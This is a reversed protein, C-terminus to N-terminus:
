LRNSMCLSRIETVTTYMENHRHDNDTPRNIVRDHDASAKPEKDSLPPLLRYLLIINCIRCKWTEHKCVWRCYNGSPPKSNVTYM